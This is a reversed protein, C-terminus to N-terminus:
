GRRALLFRVRWHMQRQHKADTSAQNPLAQRVREVDHPLSHLNSTVHLMTNTGHPPVLVLAEQM